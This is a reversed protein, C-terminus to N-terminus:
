VPLLMHFFLRRAIPVAFVELNHCGVFFSEKKEGSHKLRRQFVLDRVWGGWDRYLYLYEFDTVLM